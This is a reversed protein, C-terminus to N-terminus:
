FGDAQFADLDRKRVRGDIGYSSRQSTELWWHTLPRVFRVIIQVKRWNSAANLRAEARRLVSVRLWLELVLSHTGERPIRNDVSSHPPWQAMGSPPWSRMVQVESVDRGAKKTYRSYNFRTHKFVNRAIMRKRFKSTVHTTPKTKKRSISHLYDIIEQRNSAPQITGDDINRQYWWLLYRASAKLCITQHPVGIAIGDGLLSAHYNFLLKVMDLDQKFIATQMPSHMSSGCVRPSVGAWLLYEVTRYDNAELAKQFVEKSMEYDFDELKREAAKVADVLDCSTEPSHQCHTPESADAGSHRRRPSPDPPPVMVNDLVQM